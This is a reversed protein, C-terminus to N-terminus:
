REHHEDERTEQHERKEVGKNKRVKDAVVGGGAGVAGGILAGKGGGLLAGAAAGGAASGGIVKATTHHRRDHADQSQKAREHRRAETDQSFGSVPLALLGTLALSLITKKFTM